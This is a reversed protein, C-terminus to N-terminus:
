RAELGDCAAIVESLPRGRIRKMAYFPSGDPLIGRDYVPPIGAHDLRGTVQAELDFRERRAPSVEASIRKVAVIRGFLRDRAELVEGMGGRGILDLLEFRGANDAARASVPRDSTLTSDGGLPDDIAM